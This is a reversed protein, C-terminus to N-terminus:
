APVFMEHSTCASPIGHSSALRVSLGYSRLDESRWRRLVYQTPKGIAVDLPGNCRTAICEGIIGVCLALWQYALQCIIPAEASRPLAIPYAIIM